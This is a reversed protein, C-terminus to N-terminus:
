RRRGVVMAAGVGAAPPLNGMGAFGASAPVSFSAPSPPEPQCASPTSPACVAPAVPQTAGVRVDYVEYADNQDEGTLQARTIIFVDEGSSSADLLWSAAASTGGSLLYACGPQNRLQRRHRAGM